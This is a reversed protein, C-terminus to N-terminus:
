EAAVEGRAYDGGRRAMGTLDVAQRPAYMRYESLSGLDILQRVTPGLIMDDFVEGLGEGSLREPTASV